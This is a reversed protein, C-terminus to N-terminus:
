QKWKAGCNLCTIFLTASEDASRIQLEYYSCEKKKCKGCRFQDTKSVNKNSKFGEEKKKLIKKIDNWKLPFIDENKLYPIEHPKIQKKEVINLLYENKLYQSPDLNAIISVSKNIYTKKFKLDNWNKIINNKTSFDITWNFIGIELDKIEINNLKINEISSVIEITKERLSHAM